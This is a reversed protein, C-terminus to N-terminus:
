TEIVVGATGIQFDPHYSRDAVIVLSDHELIYKMETESVFVTM